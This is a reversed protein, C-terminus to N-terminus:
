WSEPGTPTAPFGSLWADHAKTKAIAPVPAGTGYCVYQREVWGAWCDDPANAVGAGQKIHVSTLALQPIPAFWRVVRHRSRRMRHTLYTAAWVEATGFLIMKPWGPRPGLLFRALPDGEICGQCRTLDRHTYNHTVIGDFLEAGGQVAAMSWEVRNYPFLRRAFSPKEIKPKLIILRSNALPHSEQGCLCTTQSFILAGICCGLLPAIRRKRSPVMKMCVHLAIRM